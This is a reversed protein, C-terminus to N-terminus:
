AILATLLSSIPRKMIIRARGSEALSMVVGEDSIEGLDIGDPRGEDEVPLEIWQRM